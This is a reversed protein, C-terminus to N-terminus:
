DAFHFIDNEVLIHSLLVLRVASVQYVPRVEGVGVRARQIIIIIMFMIIANLWERPTMTNGPSHILGNPM